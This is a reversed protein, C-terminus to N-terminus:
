TKSCSKELAEWAAFYKKGDESAPDAEIQLAMLSVFDNGLAQSKEEAQTSLAKAETENRKEIAQETKTLLEQLECYAKRKAEDQQIAALIAAGENVKSTEALVPTAIIAAIAAAILVRM